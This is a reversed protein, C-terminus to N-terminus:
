YKSVDWKNRIIVNSTKECETNNTPTQFYKHKVLLQFVKAASKCTDTFYAEGVKTARVIFASTLEKVINELKNLSDLDM